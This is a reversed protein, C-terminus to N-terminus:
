LNIKELNSIKLKLQKQEYRKFEILANLRGQADSIISNATRQTIDYKQQLLSNYSSKNFSKSNKITHFSERVAKSYSPLTLDIYDILDKNLSTHLQTVITFKKKLM